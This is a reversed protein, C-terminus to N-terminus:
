GTPNERLWAITEELTTRLPTPEWGLEDRARRADYWAYSGILQLISRSVLPPEGKLKKWANLAVVLACAAWRPVKWRPPKAGTIAAVEAVFDDVTVNQGSLIYRQGSRGREAALLMGAAFDRVDLCGFGIEV